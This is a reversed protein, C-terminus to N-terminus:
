ETGSFLGPPNPPSSGLLVNETPVFESCSRFQLEQGRLPRQFDNEQRRPWLLYSPEAPRAGRTRAREAGPARCCLAACAASPAAGTGPQDCDQKRNGAAAERGRERRRRRRGGDRGGRSGGAAAGLEAPSCPCPRACRSTLRPKPLPVRRCQGPPPPATPSLGQCPPPCSLPALSSSQATLKNRLFVSPLLPSACFSRFFFTLALKQLVSISAHSPLPSGLLSQCSQEM